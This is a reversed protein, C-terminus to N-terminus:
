DNKFEMRLVKVPTGQYSGEFEKTVLFGFKTYLNRAAVNTAAVNLAFTGKTTDLIHLILKHAIKLRRYEPHVFLWSIYTGNHGAFGKICNDEYVYVNSTEFLALMKSDQELPITEIDTQLNAFEDVKALNYISVIEEWDSEQYIRINM